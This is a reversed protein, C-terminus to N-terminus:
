LKFFMFRHTMLKIQPQPQWYFKIQAVARSSKGGIDEGVDIRLRPGVDQGSLGGRTGDPRQMVAHGRHILGVGVHEQLM